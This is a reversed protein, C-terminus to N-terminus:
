NIDELSESQSTFVWCTSNKVMKWPLLYLVGELLSFATVFLMRTRPILGFIWVYKGGTSLNKLHSSGFQWGHVLSFLFFLLHTLCAVRCIRPENESTMIKCKRQHCICIWSHLPPQPVTTHSHTVFANYKEVFSHIDVRMYATWLVLYAWLKPLNSTILKDKKLQISTYNILLFKCVNLTCMNILWFMQM